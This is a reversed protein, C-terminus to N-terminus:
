YITICPRYIGYKEKGNDVDTYSFSFHFLPYEEAFNLILKLHELSLSGCAGSSIPFIELQGKFIRSEKVDWSVDYGTIKSNASKNLISLLKYAIQERKSLKKIKKKEDSPRLKLIFEEKVLIESSCRFTNASLIASVKNDVIFLYPADTLADVTDQLEYGIRKLHNIANISLSNTKMNM